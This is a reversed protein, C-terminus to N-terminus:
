PVVTVVHWGLTIVNGIISVIDLSFPDGPPIPCPGDPFVYIYDDGGACQICGNWPPATVTFLTCRPILTGPAVNPPVCDNIVKTEGTLSNFATVRLYGYTANWLYSGIQLVTLGLFPVVAEVNCAPMIFDAGTSLAAVLIQQVVPQDHCEQVAGAQNYYPTPTTVACASACDNTCGCNSGSCGCTM